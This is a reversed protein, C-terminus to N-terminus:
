VINMFVALMKEYIGGCSEWCMVYYLTRRLNRGRAYYLTVFYVYFVYKSVNSKPARARLVKPVCKCTNADMWIYM